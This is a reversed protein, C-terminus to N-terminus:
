APRRYSLGNRCAGAIGGLFEDSGSIQQNVLLDITGEVPIQGKLGFKV